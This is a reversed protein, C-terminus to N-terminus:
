FTIISFTNRTMHTQALQRKGKCAKGKVNVMCETVKNNVSAHQDSLPYEINKEQSLLSHSAMGAVYLHSQFCQRQPPAIPDSSKKPGARARFSYEHKVSLLKIESIECSILKM